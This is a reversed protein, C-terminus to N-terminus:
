VAKHMALHCLIIMTLDVDKDRFKTSFSHHLYSLLNFLLIGRDLALKALDFALCSM